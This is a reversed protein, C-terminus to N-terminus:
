HGLALLKHLLEAAWDPLTADPGEFPEVQEYDDGGIVASHALRGSGNVTLRLWGHEAAEWELAISGDPEVEAMPERGLPAVLALLLDAEALTASAPPTWGREDVFPIADALALMLLPSMPGITGRAGM